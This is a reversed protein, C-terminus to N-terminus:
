SLSVTPRTGVPVRGYYRSKTAALLVQLEDIPAATHLLQVVYALQPRNAPPVELPWAPPEGPVAVTHFPRNGSWQGSIAELGIMLAPSDM